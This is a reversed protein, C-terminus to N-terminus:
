DGDQGLSSGLLYARVLAKEAIDTGRHDVALRRYVRVADAAHGMEVLVDGAILPSAKEPAGLRWVAVELVEVKAWSRLAVRDLGDGTLPLPETVTFVEEGDVLLSLEEGVRQFALRYTIGPQLHCGVSNGQDPPGPVPNRSIIHVNARNGGFQCAYGTPCWWFQRPNERRTNLYIELGDVREPWRARIEVRVDGGEHVDQLWVMDTRRLVLPAELRRPADQALERDASLALQDVGRGPASLDLRGVLQWAGFYRFYDLVFYVVVAAIVVGFLAVTRLLVRQRQRRRRRGAQARAIREHLQGLEEHPAALSQALDLDGRQLACEAHAASASVLGQRATRNEPWMRLAHRLTAGIEAFAAYDRDRSAKVIGATAEQALSISEAHRVYDLLADRLQSISQYRGDPDPAMATHVIDLLPGPLAGALEAPLPSLKGSRKMEWFADPDESWTPHRLTLMHYLTAGLCYIDSRQDAGERRAQEPAMYAPTGFIAREAAGDQRDMSLACGWDLVLVEGYGGLMINDPKIDQHIYGHDHAYELADCVKLVIHIRGDISAFEGPTDSGDVAARIADGVTTGSVKKMLFYVRKADTLGIDYVPVINPHELMATVRAEHVFRRQVGPRGAAAGRLLKLAVTRGLSRDRLAYVRASGGKGLEDSLEFRPGDETADTLLEAPVLTTEGFGHLPSETEAANPTHESTTRELYRGPSQDSTADVATRELERRLGEASFSRAPVTK